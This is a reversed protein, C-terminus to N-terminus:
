GGQRNWMQCQCGQETGIKPLTERCRCTCYLFAFLTRPCKVKFSLCQCIDKNFLYISIPTFTPTLQPCTTCVQTMYQQPTLPVSVDGLQLSVTPLGDLSNCGGSLRWTNSDQAYQLGQIAQEFCHVCDGTLSQPHSPLPLQAQTELCDCVLESVQCSMLTRSNTKPEVAGTFKLFMPTLQNDLRLVIQRLRGHNYDLTAHELLGVCCFNGVLQLWKEEHRSMSLIHDPTFCACGMSSRQMPTAPLSSIPALISSLTPPM